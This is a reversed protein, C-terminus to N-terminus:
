EAKEEEQFLQVVKLGHTSSDSLIYLWCDILTARKYEPMGAMEVRVLQNLTYGDFAYLAYEGMGYSWFGLGILGRDRDIFYSKYDESFSVAVTKVAVSDVSTETEEYVELKLNRSNDYGVGLLYGDAFNILSSSYGEIVGTDTYTIHDLDSLDFAFVPDKM